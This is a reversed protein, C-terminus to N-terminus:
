LCSGGKGIGQSLEPVGQSIEPVCPLRIDDRMETTSGTTQERKDEKTDTISM